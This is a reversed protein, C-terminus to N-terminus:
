VAVAEARVPRDHEDFTVDKVLDLTKRLYDCTEAVSEKPTMHPGSLRGLLWECLSKSALFWDKRSGPLPIGTISDGETQDGLEPSGLWINAFMQTEGWMLQFGGHDYIDCKDAFGANYAYLRDSRDSHLSM